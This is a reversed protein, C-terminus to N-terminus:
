SQSTVAFMSSKSNNIIAKSEIRNKIDKIISHISKQSLPNNDGQNIWSFINYGTVNNQFKASWDKSKM